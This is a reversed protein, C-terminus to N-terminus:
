ASKRITAVTTCINTGSESFAGIPLDRWYPRLADLEGHDYRATAPLIAILTGNPKIFKLAHRVHKAYHRGYFPPNMIVADFMLDANPIVELFNGVIVGFGKDKCINARTRDIEVGCATAGAKRMADMIRGDGCSPELIRKGRLDIDSLVRDIVAQPTPYFQLDKSVETSQRKSPRAEDANPCDALVDGYFEALALNIDRLADPGFFLHGNGNKFRKLWIGRGVTQITKPDAEREYRSQFPCPVERSM